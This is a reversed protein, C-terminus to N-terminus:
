AGVSAPGLILAQSLRGDARTVTVRVWVHNGAALAYTSAITTPTTPPTISNGLIGETARFPGKFFSRGVGQPRGVYILMASDDDDVWTDAETFNVNFNTGAESFTDVSPATFDPLSFITPGDDVIPLGAQLRPTNCRIYMMSGTLNIPTGQSNTIPVNDGYLAWAARQAANLQTSWRTSLQGFAARVAVQRATNPNVPVVRNRLYYGFRNHSAVTSGKSGSPMGAFDGPIIKM